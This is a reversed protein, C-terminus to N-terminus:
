ILFKLYSERFTVQSEQKISIPFEDLIAELASSGKTEYQKEGGSRVPDFHPNCMSENLLRLLSTLDVIPGDTTTGLEVVL